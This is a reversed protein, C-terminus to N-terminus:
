SCDFDQMASQAQATEDSAEPYRNAVEALTICAEPTQGLTGLAEGLRLLVQPSFAAHQDMSFSQLYAEAAQRTEGLETFAEGRIFQIQATLPSGPYTEFFGNTIEIALEPDGASHADLARELDSKEGVALNGAALNSGATIIGPSTPPAQFSGDIRPTEGLTAIDCDKELECLRFDLDGIQNTGNSVIQQIRFELQETKGTLRQLEAELANMRDLATGGSLGSPGATTNLEQKLGQLTVYLVTIQQRIDALTERREQAFGSIPFLALCLGLGIPKLM